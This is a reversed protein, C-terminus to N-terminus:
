IIIILYFTFLNQKKCLYYNTIITYLNSSSLWCCVIRSTKKICKPIWWLSWNHNGRFWWIYQGFRYHLLCVTRKFVLCKLKLTIFKCLHIIYINLLYCIIKNYLFIFVSYASSCRSSNLLTTSFKILYINM